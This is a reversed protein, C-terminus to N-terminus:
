SVLQACGDAGRARCDIRALDGVVILDALGALDNRGFDVDGDADGARDLMQRAHLFALDDDRDVFIGIRRDELHGIDPKHSIQKIRHRLQGLLKLPEFSM